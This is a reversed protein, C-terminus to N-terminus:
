QRQLLRRFPRFGVKWSKPCPQQFLRKFPSFGVKWSEPCSQQLQWETLCRSNSSKEMHESLNTMSTAM